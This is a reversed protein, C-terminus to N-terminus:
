SKPLTYDSLLFFISKHQRIPSKKIKKGARQAIYRGQPHYEKSSISSRTRRPSPLVIDFSRKQAEADNSAINLHDNPDNEAEIRKLDSIARVVEHTHKYHFHPVAPFSGRRRRSLYSM